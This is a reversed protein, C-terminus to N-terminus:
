WRYVDELMSPDIAASWAGIPKGTVPDLIPQSVQIVWALASDDFKLTGIHRSGPGAKFTQLWKDEEGQWYDSNADSAGVLLGMGDMIFLERYTGGGDRKIRRLHRSVPRELINEILDHAGSEFEDHWQNELQEIRSQSYSLTESNQLRIADVVVDDDMWLGIDSRILAEIAALFEKSDTSELEDSFANRFGSLATSFSFNGKNAESEAIDILATQVAVSDLLHIYFNRHDIVLEGAVIAIHRSRSTTPAEWFEPNSYRVTEAIFAAQDMPGLTSVYMRIGEFTGDSEDIDIQSDVMAQLPLLHEFDPSSESADVYNQFLRAAKIRKAKSTFVDGLVREGYFRALRPQTRSSTLLDGFDSELLELISRNDHQVGLRAVLDLIRAFGPRSRVEPYAGLDVLRVQVETLESESVTARDSLYLLYNTFASYSREHELFTGFRAEIQTTVEEFQVSMAADTQTRITGRVWSMIGPIAVTMLLVLVMGIVRLRMMNRRDLQDTVSKAIITTFYDTLKQESQIIRGILEAEERQSDGIENSTENAM